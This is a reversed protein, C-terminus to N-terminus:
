VKGFVVDLLTNAVIIWTVSEEFLLTADRMRGNDMATMALSDYFRFQSQAVKYQEVVDNM